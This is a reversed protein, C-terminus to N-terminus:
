PLNPQLAVARLPAAAEPLTQLARNLYGDDTTKVGPTGTELYDQADFHSRTPDPSGVAHVIALSGATWWPKLASLSPHLGFSDDVALAAGDGARPIAISPRLDAYRSEGTPPVMSLGDVAGRQ